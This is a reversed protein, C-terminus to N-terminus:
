VKSLKSEYKELILEIKQQLYGKLGEAIKVVKSNSKRLETIPEEKEISSCVRDFFIQFTLSSDNRFKIIREPSYNRIKEELIKGSFFDERYGEFIERCLINFIKCQGDLESQIAELHSKLHKQLVKRAKYHLNYYKRGVDDFERVLKELDNPIRLKTSPNLKDWAELTTRANFPCGFIELVKCKSKVEDYLPEYIEQRNRIAYQVQREKRQLHLNVWFTILGGVIVGIAGILVSILQSWSM